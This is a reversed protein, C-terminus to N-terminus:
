AATPRDGGDTDFFQEPGGSARAGSAFWAELAVSNRRGLEDLLCQRQEVIRAKEHPRSTERLAWFSLRWARCLEADTLTRASEASWGSQVPPAEVIAVVPRSIARPDSHGLMRRRQDIVPPSTGVVLLVLLFALGPVLTAAALSLIVLATGCATIRGIWGLGITSMSHNDWAVRGHRLMILVLATPAATATAMFAVTGPGWVLIAAIVGPLSLATWANVWGSWRTETSSAAPTM